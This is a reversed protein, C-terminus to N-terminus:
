PSEEINLIIEGKGKCFDCDDTRIGTCCGVILLYGDGKCKICVVMKIVMTNIISM